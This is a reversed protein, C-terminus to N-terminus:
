GDLARWKRKQFYKQFLDVLNGMLSAKCSSFGQEKCLHVFIDSTLRRFEDVGCCHKIKSYIEEKFELMYDHIGSPLIIRRDDPSCFCKLIGLIDANNWRYRSDNLIKSKGKVEFTFTFDATIVQVNFVNEFISPFNLKDDYLTYGTKSCLIIDKDEECKVRQGIKPFPYFIVDILRNKMKVFKEM